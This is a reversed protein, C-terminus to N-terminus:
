NPGPAAARSRMLCLLAVDDHRTRRGVRSAVIHDIVAEPDGAPATRLAHCLEDLGLDIPNRRDEVLGDTYLLLTAAAEFAFVADRYAHARSAGLPPDAPLPVLRVEAGERVVPLPHGANVGTGAGNVIDLELYCCTAITDLRLDFILRNALSIVASPRHGELAYARLAGRVQGMAAAAATNHGAVDGVVVGVLGDRLAIVDYWDGGVEAGRTWPLYRTACALGDIRPTGVPLLAHQLQAAISLSTEYVLARHLAQAGLAALAMLTSRTDEDFDRPEHYGVVLAGLIEGAVALPLFAWARRVGPPVAPAAGDQAAEFEELTSLFRARGTRAVGTAPYPHEMPLGDLRALVEPEYGCHYRLRLSDDDRLLLALGEGGASPRLVSGIAAYVQETTSAAVLATTVSELARARAASREARAVSATLEQQRLMQETIERFSVAVSGAGDRGMKIEWAQGIAPYELQQRWPDGTEAVARYREFLGDDWSEPAIASLRRGIVDEVTRGTLKAGLQNVYDCVFDVIRGDAERVPRLVTFGDFAADLMDYLRAGGDSRPSVTVQRLDVFRVIFGDGYRGARLEFHGSISSRDYYVTRTVPEGSLVVSRYLPLTGDHVTEPWLHRYRRGILEERPRGVLRCGAENIYLLTFDVIAGHERVSGAVVWGQPDANLMALLEADPLGGAM